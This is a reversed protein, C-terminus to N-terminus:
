EGWIIGGGANSSDGHGHGHSHGHGHGLGDLSINSEANDLDLILGYTLEGKFTAALKDETTSRSWEVRDMVTGEISQSILSYPVKTMTQAYVHHLTIEEYQYWSVSVDSDIKNEIESAREEYGAEIDVSTIKLGTEFVITKSVTEYCYDTPNKATLEKNVIEPEGWTYFCKLDAEGDISVILTPTLIAIQGANLAPVSVTTEAELTKKHGEIDATYEAKVEVTTAAICNSEVTYELKDKGNYTIKSQSTVNEPNGNIIAIVTPQVSLIADGPKYGEPIEIGGVNIEPTEVEVESTFNEKECATFSVAMFAAIVACSLFNIKKM